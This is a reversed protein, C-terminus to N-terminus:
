YKKGQNESKRVSYYLCLFLFIYPFAKCPFRLSFPDARRLRGSEAAALDGPTDLLSEDVYRLVRRLFRGALDDLAIEQGIEVEDKQQDRDHKTQDARELIQRKQRQHDCVTQDADHLLQACLLDEVFHAKQVRRM